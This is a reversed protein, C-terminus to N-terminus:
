IKFNVTCRLKAAKEAAAKKDFTVKENVQLLVITTLSVLYLWVTKSVKKMAEPLAFDAVVSAVVISRPHLGASEM